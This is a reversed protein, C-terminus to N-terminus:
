KRKGADNLNDKGTAPSLGARFENNSAQKWSEFLAERILRAEETKPVITQMNPISGSIRGTRITVM